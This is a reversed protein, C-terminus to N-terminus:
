ILFSKNSSTAIAPTYYMEKKKRRMKGSGDCCQESDNEKKGRKEISETAGIFKRKKKGACQICRVPVFFLQKCASHTEISRKLKNKTTKKFTEAGCSQQIRKEKEHNKEDNTDTVLTPSICCFYFSRVIIKKIESTLERSMCNYLTCMSYIPQWKLCKIPNEFQM